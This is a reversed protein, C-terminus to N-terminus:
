QMDMIYQSANLQEFRSNDRNFQLVVEGKDGTGEFRVKRIHISTRDANANPRDVVIGFDPKNFWAASGEIDYLTPVRAKGDKGVDKTPHALVFTKLGHRRGFKIVTRLARNIYSTDSEFKERAHEVENWPDLIFGRVGFRMLADYVREMLWELTLDQDGDGAVDFDIFVFHENIFRDVRALVPPTMKDLPVGSVIRRLKDRLQPVVPLEPSFVAWKWGYQDALNFALNMVWTSKGSGPLGTVVTFAPLFPRFITDLIPWGTSYTEIPPRDPYDALAYIGKLPYPKAEALVARAADEGQEMLVQNLDKCGDPYTVFWCRSAGLRRVLEDALFKGNRDNDVAIIFRRIKKLRDRNHYMFWFKDGEVDDTDERQDKDKPPNPAGAPVSVTHWWGADIATLMDPEGETIVLATTGSPDYLAPDDMVDGNIFTQRSGPKQFFFKKPGRYKEGVIEGGEIIPFVLINGADDPSVHDIHRNGQEDESYVVRGTFVGM